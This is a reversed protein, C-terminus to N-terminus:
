TKSQKNIFFSGGALGSKNGPIPAFGFREDFNNNKLKILDYALDSWIIAMAVNGNKM